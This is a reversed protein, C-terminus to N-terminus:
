DWHESRLFVDECFSCKFTEDPHVKPRHVNFDSSTKMKTGCTCTYLKGEYEQGLPTNRLQSEQRLLNSDKILRHAPM